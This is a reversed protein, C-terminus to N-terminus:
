HPVGGTDSAHNQLYAQLFRYEEKTLSLQPKMSKLNGIWLNASFHNAPTASHCSSCSASWMERGYGWLKEKSALTQEKATFVTLSVRHWTIDTIPDVMTEERQVETRAKKGLAAYFIRKGMRGYILADVGDQQWGEIKIELMKGSGKVLTLETGPLIKGAPKEDGKGLFFPKTALAYIKGPKKKEELALAELEEFAAKYGSSMDPMAHAVGKHCNICTQGEKIGKEMRKAGDPNKFRSFDFSTETHCTRCERSDGAEMRAWVGKAMRLRNDEFKEPTDITGKLKGIVDKVSRIKVVAAGLTDPPVHCANCSASMGSPNKNHVSAQYEPYVTNKMEHCSICFGNKNDEGTNDTGAAFLATLSGTVMLAALGCLALSKKNLKM